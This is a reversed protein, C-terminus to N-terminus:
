VCFPAKGLLAALQLLKRQDVLRGVVFVRNDHLFLFAATKVHRVVFLKIRFDVSLVYLECFSLGVRGQDETVAFHDAGDGGGVVVDTGLISKQFHGFLELLLILQLIGAV